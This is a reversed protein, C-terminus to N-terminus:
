PGDLVHQLGLLLVAFVILAITSGQYKLNTRLRDLFELHSESTTRSSLSRPKSPGVEDHRDEKFPNVGGPDQGAPSGDKSRTTNRRRAAVGAGNRRQRRACRRSLLVRPRCVSCIGRGANSRHSGYGNGIGKMARPARRSCGNTRDVLASFTCYAGAAHADDIPRFGCGNLPARCAWTRTALATVLNADPSTLSAELGGARYGLLLMETAAGRPFCLVTYM